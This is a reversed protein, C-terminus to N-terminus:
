VNPDEEAMKKRAEDAKVAWNVMKREADQFIAFQDDTVEELNELEFSLIKTPIANAATGYRGHSVRKAARKAYGLSSYVTMQGSARRGVVGEWTTVDKKM